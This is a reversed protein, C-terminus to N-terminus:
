SSKAGVGSTKEIVAKAVEYSKQLSAFGIEFRGSAKTPTEIMNLCLIKFLRGVSRTFAVDLAHLMKEKDM